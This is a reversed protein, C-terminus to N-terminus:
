SARKVFASFDATFRAPGEQVGADNVNSLDKNMLILGGGERELQKLTELYSSVSARTIRGSRIQSEIEAIEAHVGSPSKRTDWLARLAEEQTRFPLGNRGSVQREFGHVHMKCLAFAKSGDPLTYQELYYAANHTEYTKAVFSSAGAEPDFQKARACMYQLLIAFDECDGSGLFVTRLPHQAYQEGQVEAEGHIAGGHLGGRSVFDFNSTVFASIAEPTKLTRVVDDIYRQARERDQQTMTYEAKERASRLSRGNEFRGIPAGREPIHYIGKPLSYTRGDLVIETQENAMVITPRSGNGGDYYETRDPTKRMRLSGATSIYETRGQFELSQLQGRGAGFSVREGSETTYRVSTGEARLLYQPLALVKLRPTILSYKSGDFQIEVGATETRSSKLFDQMRRAAQSMNQLYESVRVDPIGNRQFFTGDFNSPLSLPVDEDAINTFRIARLTDLAASPTVDGSQEPSSTRAEPRRQQVRAVEPPATTQPASTVPQQREEPAPSRPQRPTPAQTAVRFEMAHEQIFAPAANFSINVIGERRTFRQIRPGRHFIAYKTGDPLSVYEYQEGTQKQTRTSWRLGREASERSTGAARRAVTLEMQKQQVVPPCMSLGIRFPPRTSRPLSVRVTGDNYVAYATGNQMRTWEYDRGRMWPTVPTERSLRQAMQERARPLFRKRMSEYQIDDVRRRSEHTVDLDRPLEPSRQREPHHSRSPM